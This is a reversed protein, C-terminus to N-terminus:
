PVDKLTGGDRLCNSKLSPQDPHYYDMNFSVMNAGVTIQDTMNECWKNGKTFTTGFNIKGITREKENICSGSNSFFHPNKSECFTKFDNAKDTNRLELCMLRGERVIICLNRGSAETNSTNGTNSKKEDESSCSFMFTAVILLLLVTKVKKIKM